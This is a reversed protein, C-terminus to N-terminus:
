DQNDKRLFLGLLLVIATIWAFVGFIIAGYWLRPVFEFIVTSEGAPVAVARFMVNARYVPSDEGNVTARWGPYYADALYLYTEADSNVRIEVRTDTYSIIEATGSLTGALEPADHIVITQPSQELIILAEEHGEWDDATIAIDQALWVRSSTELRYIKIDSSLVREFGAPTLQQFTNTISNVVSVGLISESHDTVLTEFEDWTVPALYYNTDRFPFSETEYGPVDNILLVRVEDFVFEPQEPMAFWYEALTTDYFVDQYPVDFNKDTIIYDTNTLQLWELAPVCAGRCEPYTMMLGIRGDATRLSNEPLMLSTFQSYYITPLVGGGYGDITPIHWSLGLNPYIIEQNKIATFATAQAQADMGYSDYRVRLNGVDGPDFLGASISLMRAPPIQQENFALMQSISFRQELYVDRPALDNYPLIRSALFFEFTILILVFIPMQKREAFAFIAILSLLAIGWLVFTGTSSQSIPTLHEPFIPAFQAILMLGIIMMIAIGAVLANKWQFGRKQLAVLGYASLMSMGLTYLALWRAPVRFLNFGPLEAIYLYIPTYRGIAFVLGIIALITWVWQRRGNEDRTMAGYLALGLAIVGIYAIFETFLQGDYNPLLARGIYTPPLSFATAQNVDFGSGRNSMGTLELAPLLQPITLIVAFIAAGAVFLLSQVISKLRNESAPISFLSYIGLVIGSMFVTQTHGSFIQLAWVVSLLISYFIKQRKNQIFHLLYILWPLWAIGQLQNIQEVHASLYGSLGFTIAAISAPILANDVTKRFLIFAGTTALIIHILISYRVADPATSFTTLWNLPYFTGVQPNALLPVGMFIDGTWLPLEGASIADDRADWYPYFYTYTDGRALIMDTFALKHFFLLSLVIIFIIPLCRNLRAM